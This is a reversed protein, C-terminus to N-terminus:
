VRTIFAPTLHTSNLLESSYLRHASFHAPTKYFRFHSTRSKKKDWCSGKDSLDAIREVTADKGKYTGHHNMGSSVTAIEHDHTEPIILLPTTAQKSPSLGNVAMSHCSVATFLSILGLLLVLLSKNM